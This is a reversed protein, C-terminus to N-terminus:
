MLFGEMKVIYFWESSFLGFNHVILISSRLIPCRQPAVQAGSLRSNGPCLRYSKLSFAEARKKKIQCCDLFRYVQNNGIKFAIGLAIPL